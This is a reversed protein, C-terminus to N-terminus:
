RGRVELVKGAQMVVTLRRSAGNEVILTDYNWEEKGDALLKSDPEGLDELVTYDPTGVGLYKFSDLFTFTQPGSAPRQGEAKMRRAMAIKEKMKEPPWMLVIRVEEDIFQLEPCVPKGNRNRAPKSYYWSVRDEHEWKEDPEGLNALVEEENKFAVGELVGQDSRTRPSSVATPQVPAATPVHTPAATPIATPMIAPEPTPSPKVRKKAARKPPLTKRAPFPSPEPTPEVQAAPQPVPEPAKPARAVLHWALYALALIVFWYRHLFPKM